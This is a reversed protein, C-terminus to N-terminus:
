QANPKRVSSTPATPEAVGFTITGVVDGHFGPASASVLTTFTGTVNPTACTTVTAVGPGTNPAIDFAVM